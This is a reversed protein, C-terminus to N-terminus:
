GDTGDRGSGSSSSFARSFFIGASCISSWAPQCMEDLSFIGGLVV